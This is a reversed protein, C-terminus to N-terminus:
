KLFGPGNQYSRLTANVEPDYFSGAGADTGSEADDIIPDLFEEVNIEPVEMIGEPSMQIMAKQIPKLALAYQMLEVAMETQLKKRQLINSRLVTKAYVSRLFDAVRDINKVINNFVGLERGGQKYLLENEKLLIAVEKRLRPNDFMIAFSSINKYLTRFNKRFEPDQLQRAAVGLSGKQAAKRMKQLKPLIGKVKDMNLRYFRSYFDLLQSTEKLTRAKVTIREKDTGARSYDQRLKRIGEQVSKINAVLSDRKRGYDKLDGSIQAALRQIDLTGETVTKARATFSVAFVVMVAATIIRHHKM